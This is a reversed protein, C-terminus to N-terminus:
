GDPSVEIGNTTGMDTALKTVKGDAGVRWLQGTGKAWRPDSAHLDGNPHIALDNPQNMRDDHAYVTIKKTKPDIKLVNHGTYDAVYMTGKRDFVIGNGASKGPLEVWVEAKGAPTVKAIDAAKKMAVLYLNGDADCAPGEIGPTFSNKETLPKAVFLEDRPDAACAATASLLAILALLQHM